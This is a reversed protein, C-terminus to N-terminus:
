FTKANGAHITIASMEVNSPKIKAPIQYNRLGKELEPTSNREVGQSHIYM